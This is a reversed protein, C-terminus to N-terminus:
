GERRPLPAKSHLEKPTAADEATRVRKDSSPATCGAAGRACSQPMAGPYPTHEM